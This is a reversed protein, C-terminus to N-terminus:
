RTGVNNDRRLLGNLETPSGTMQLVCMTRLRIADHIEKVILEFSKDFVCDDQEDFGSM